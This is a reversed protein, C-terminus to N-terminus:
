KLCPPNSEGSEFLSGSVSGGVGTGAGLQEQPGGAPPQAQPQGGRAEAQQQQQAQQGEQEALLRQQQLDFLQSLVVAM